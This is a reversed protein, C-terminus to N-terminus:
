REGGRLFDEFSYGHQAITPRYLGMVRLWIGVGFTGRGREVHCVRGTTIGLSRALQGQTMNAAKRLDILPQHPILKDMGIITYKRM